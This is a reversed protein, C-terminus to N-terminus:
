ITPLPQSFVMAHLNVVALFRDAPTRIWSTSLAWFIHKQKHWLPVSWLPLDPPPPVSQLDWIKFLAAVSFSILVVKLLFDTFLGDVHKKYGRHCLAAQYLWNVIEGSPLTCEPLVCMSLPDLLVSAPQNIDWLGQPPPISASYYLDEPLPRLFLNSNARVYFVHQLRGFVQFLHSPSPSVM